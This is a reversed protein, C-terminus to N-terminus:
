TSAHHIPNQRIDIIMCTDTPSTIVIHINLHAHSHVHVMMRVANDFQIDTWECYLSWSGGAKRKQIGYDRVLIQSDLSKAKKLM